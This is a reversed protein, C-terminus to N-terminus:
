AEGPESKLGILGLGVSTGTDNGAGPRRDLQVVMEQTTGPAPLTTGVAKTWFGYSTESLGITTKALENWGPAVALMQVTTGVYITSGLALASFDPITTGWATGAAVCSLSFGMAARDGATTCPHVRDGLAYVGATTFTSEPLDQDLSPGFVAYNIAVEGVLGSAAEVNFGYIVLSYFDEDGVRFLGDSHAAQREEGSFIVRGHNDSDVALEPDAHWPGIFSSRMYTKLTARAEAATTSGLVTEMYSSVALGSMDALYAINGDGDFGLAKGTQIETIILNGYDLYSAARVSRVLAAELQQAIMTLKDLGDEHARSPFAGGEPYAKEQLPAVVREIFISDTALPTSFLVVNGGADEGAGTVSYDVGETLLSADGGTPTKYVRLNTADFIKFDYPLTVSTTGSYTVHNTTTEVTM